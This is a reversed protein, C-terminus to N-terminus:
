GRRSSGLAASQSLLYVHTEHRDALDQLFNELGTSLHGKYMALISSVLEILHKELALAEYAFNAPDHGCGCGALFAATKQAQAVPAVAECDGTLGILKEAITDLEAYTAEYIRGFLLHDSYFTPGRTRWHFSHEAEYIGRVIALLDSLVDALSPQAVAPQAQQLVVPQM